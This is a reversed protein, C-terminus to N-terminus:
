DTDGLKLNKREWKRLSKLCKDMVKFFGNADIDQNMSMGRGLYKYWRIEISPLFELLQEPTAEKYTRHFKMHCNICLTLGNDINFRLNKYQSFSFIHHPHLTGGYHGCRQCIYKDRKLVEKSWIKHDMNYRARKNEEWIGGRWLASNEGRNALSIKKRTELSHRHGKKFVNKPMKGKLAERIKNKHEQSLKRGKCCLSLKKRAEDSVTHGVLGLSIKRKHEETLVSGKLRPM